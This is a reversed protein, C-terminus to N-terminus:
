SVRDSRRLVGMRLFEHRIVRVREDVVRHVRHPGRVLAQPVAIKVSVSGLEHQEIRLFKGLLRREVM